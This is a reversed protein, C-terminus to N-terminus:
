ILQQKALRQLLWHLVQGFQYVGPSYFDNRFGNIGLTLVDYILIKNLTKQYSIEIHPTLFTHLNDLIDSKLSQM